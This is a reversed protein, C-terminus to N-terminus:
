AVAKDLWKFANDKDGLGVYIMASYIAPVYQTHSLKELQALAENAREKQGMRAYAYGLPVITAANPALDRARQFEALAKEHMEKQEYARGLNYRALAVDPAIEIARQAQEIAADYDRGFYYAEALAINVPLSVPEQKLALKISRAAAAPDGLAEYYQGYWQLATVYRPNLQLARKFEAEAAPPNRDYVLNIYGLSAHPEALSPDLSIAKEALGRAKTFAVDPPMGGSQTSGLVAIGDALGAYAPAYNPDLQIAQNFYGFSKQVSALNRKNWFFRGRLFADYAAPTVKQPQPLPNLRVGVENAIATAVQEQLGIVDHLDEEYSKSWVHTEDKANILQITIRVRDKERFVSGEIVYDVNLDARIKAVTKGVYNAATTRAIVKLKAPNLRGLQAILEETMGQVFPEQTVDKSYNELPLVILRVGTQRWGLRSMLESAPRFLLVSLVVVLLPIGGVLFQRRHSRLWDVVTNAGDFFIEEEIEEDYDETAAASTSAGERLPKHDASNWWADIESQFAYVTGLKEHLHRHVPLGERREWRQVTSVDRKLYAAIEKWSDLRRDELSPSAAAPKSTESNGM